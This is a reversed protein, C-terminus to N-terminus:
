VDYPTTVDEMSDHLNFGSLDVDEIGLSKLDLSSIDSLRNISIGDVDNETSESSDDLIKATEEEVVDDNIDSENLAYKKLYFRTSTTRQLNKAFSKFSNTDDDKEKSQKVPVNAFMVNIDVLSKRKDKLLESQSNNEEGNTRTISPLSTRAAQRLFQNPHVNRPIGPSVVKTWESSTPPSSALNSSNSTCTAIPSSKINSSSSKKKLRRPPAM